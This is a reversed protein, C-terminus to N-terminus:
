RPDHRRDVSVNMKSLHALPDRSARQDRVLWRSFQKIARLYHNSTQVSVGGARLEALYAQVDGPSLDGIFSWRCAKAIKRVKGSVEQVYQDSNGKCQLYEQYAGIHQSLPLKAMGENRDVLGALEHEVRKVLENLMAQAARKDAALPVRKERGLADTYRGWWKKSKARVKKGTQADRIVVPKKYLSAM